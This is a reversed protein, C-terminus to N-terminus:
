PPFGLKEEIAAFQPMQRILKLLTDTKIMALGADHTRYAVDLWKLAEAPQSWQAYVEAYQFAGNDGLANRLAAFHVKAQSAHGLCLEGMWGTQGRTCDQEATQDDSREFAIIASIMATAASDAGLIRAHRLSALAGEYDRIALQAYSLATYTSAALPDLSVGLEAVRLANAYVLRTM